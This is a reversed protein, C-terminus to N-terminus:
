EGTEQIPSASTLIINVRSPLTEKNRAPVFCILTQSM